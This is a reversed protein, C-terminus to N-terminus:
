YSINRALEELMSDDPCLKVQILNIAAKAAFTNIPKDRDAVERLYVMAIRERNNWPIQSDRCKNFVADVIPARKRKRSLEANEEWYADHQAERWPVSGYDMGYGAVVQPMESDSEGKCMYREYKALDRVLAVSYGGNGNASPYARKIAQRVASIKKTTHLVAHFHPNDGEKERVM